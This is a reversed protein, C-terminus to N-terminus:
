ATHVYDAPKSYTRNRIAEIRDLISPHTSATVRLKDTVQTLVATGGSEEDRAILHLARSISTPGVSHAAAADAMYECQRSVYEEWLHAPYLVVRELWRLLFGLISLLFLFFRALIGFLPIFSLIFCLISVVLYVIFIPAFLIITAAARFAGMFFRMAVDRNRIHGMEHGIVAAACATPMTDVLASSLCIIHRGGGPTYMGITYANPVDSDYILLEIEIRGSLGLREKVIRINEYACIERRSAPKLSKPKAKKGKIKYHGRVGTDADDIYVIRPHKWARYMGYSVAYLETMLVFAVLGAFTLGTVVPDLQAILAPLTVAGPFLELIPTAILYFATASLCVLM